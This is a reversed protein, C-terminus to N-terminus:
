FQEIRAKYNREAKNGKFNKGNKKNIIPILLMNLYKATEKSCTMLPSLLHPFCSLLSASLAQRSRAAAANLMEDPAEQLFQKNQCRTNQAHAHKQLFLENHM